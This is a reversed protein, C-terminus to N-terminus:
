PKSGRGVEKRIYRGSFAIRHGIILANTHLPPPTATHFINPKGILCIDDDKAPFFHSVAESLIFIGYWSAGFPCLPVFRAHFCSVAASRRNGGNVDYTSAREVL